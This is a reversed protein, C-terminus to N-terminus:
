QHPRTIASDLPPIYQTLRKGYLVKHHDEPHAQEAENGKPQEHAAHQATSLFSANCRAIGTKM